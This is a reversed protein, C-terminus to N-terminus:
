CKIAENPQKPQIPYERDDNMELHRGCHPCFGLAPEDYTEYNKDVCDPCYWYIIKNRSQKVEIVSASEALHEDIGFKSAREQMMGRIKQAVEANGWEIAGDGAERRGVFCGRVLWKDANETLDTSQNHYWM